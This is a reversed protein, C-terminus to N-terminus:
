HNPRDGPSGFREQRWTILDQKADQWLRALDDGTLGGTVEGSHNVNDTFLKHYRGIQVLAAQADYLEVEPRGESDYKLKKILHERGEEICAQVDFGPALDVGFRDLLTAETTPGHDRLQALIRAQEPSADDPDDTVALIYTVVGTKADTEQRVAGQSILLELAVAYSHGVVRRTTLYQSGENRAQQALRALVEDKEMAIDSIRAKIAAQINAKTLLRSATVRLGPGDKYGALRAAKTANWSDCYYVVFLQEKPTLKKHQQDQTGTAM